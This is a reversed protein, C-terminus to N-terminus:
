RGQRRLVSRITRSLIRLDLTLSQRSIYYLDYQLKEMAAAETAAYRYKVQAWGTLGPTVLHRLDYAPEKARLEEVYHPQEPRPGVISLEGRLISFAQPLEDVHTRRLVRGFPTIRPDDLDTWALNAASDASEPRMTRFKVITFVAGNRGVRPQRYLLPGRNALANGVLVFPVSLGCIFAALVAGVTDLARKTHRYTPNLRDRVDFLLAMRSLEAVPLKGFHEAYFDTLTSITLGEGHLLAAARYVDDNRAASESLVVLTAECDRAAQVVEDVRGSDTTVMDALSFAVEPVPFSTSADVTLIGADEPSLVALVRDRRRQHRRGLVSFIGLAFTFIPLVGAAFLIVWRPLLRPFVTQVLLWSGTAVASALLAAAFAPQVDDVEDPLGATHAALWHLFALGLYAAVSNQTGFAYPRDGLRSHVFGLAVVLIVIGPLFVFHLVRRVADMANDFNQAASTGSRPLGLSSWWM